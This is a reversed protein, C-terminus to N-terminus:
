LRDWPSVKPIFTQIEYDGKGKGGMVRSEEGRAVMQKNEIQSNTETKNQEDWKNKIKSKM